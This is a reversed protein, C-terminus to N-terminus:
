KRRASTGNVSQCTRPVLLSPKFRQKIYLQLCYITNTHPSHPRAAQTATSPPRTQLTSLRYSACLFRNHTRTHIQHLLRYNPHITSVSLLTSPASHRNKASPLRRIPPPATAANGSVLRASAIMDRANTDIDMSIIGSDHEFATPVDEEDGMGEDDNFPPPPM